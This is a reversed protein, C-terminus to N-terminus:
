GLITKIFGLKNPNGEALENISQAIRITEKVFELVEEESQMDLLDLLNHSVRAWEQHDPMDEGGAIDDELYYYCKDTRRDVFLMMDYVHNKKCLLLHILDHLTKM